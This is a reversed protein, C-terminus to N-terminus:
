VQRRLRKVPINLQERYKQVTRRAIEYGFTKLQDAIAQDSLPKMKNEEAIIEKLKEKIARTSVDDGSEMTMKDNFFFKLERVGYPTQVYKERSVRSITSIDMSIDEAIDQLIMPKLDADRGTLFWPKQREVIARMTRLMTTRRQMIANIFWRASEAKRMAFERAEKDSNRKLILKKLEDNVYFSPINGDNLMVAFEPEEDEDHQIIEVVLDPLIYNTKEDIVGEGPRPNLTAIVEFARQVDQPTIGLASAIPEFRRNVFEDFHDRLILYAPEDQKKRVELQILLCERLDRAAVGAPEYRQISHLVTEVEERSSETLGAILDLPADLYGRVDLSGVIYEGIVMQKDTFKDMRLQEILDEGLTQVDAQPIEVAEALSQNSKYMRRDDARADEQDDFFAEWDPEREESEADKADRDESNEKAEKVANSELTEGEPQVQDLEREDAIELLPNQEFEQQFRAELQLLPTQILESRLIQQPQAVMEQKLGIVQSLQM